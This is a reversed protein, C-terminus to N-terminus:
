DKRLVMVLNDAALMGSLVNEVGRYISKLPRMLASRKWQNTRKLLQARESDPVEERPKLADQILVMPNFHMTSVHEIQWGGVRSVMQSLAGSSFYNLHESMIYRYRSGISRIVLSHLNPVLMICIGGSSMMSSAKRLFSAPDAVHELVAWFTIADYSTDTESLELFPERIVNVGIKEAQSLAGQSVDCGTVEYDGMGCLGKLFGGTSCGVDLVKGGPLWQRFLAWERQFRVPDYDSKLKDESLYFSETRDEYFQGSVYSELVERIYVMGCRQCVVFDSNSKRWIVEAKTDLCAPCDRQITDPQTNNRTQTGNM